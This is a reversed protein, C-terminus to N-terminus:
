PNPGVYHLEFGGEELLRQLILGRDILDGVRQEPSMATRAIDGLRSALVNDMSSTLPNRVM